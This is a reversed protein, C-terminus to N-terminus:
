DRGESDDTTKVLHYRWREWDDMIYEMISSIRLSVAGLLAIGAGLAMWFGLEPHYWIATGGELSRSGSFTEPELYVGEPYHPSSYVAEDIRGVFQMLALMAVLLIVLGLIFSPWRLNLLVALVFAFGLILWAGVLSRELDMVKGVRDPVDSSYGYPMLYYDDREVFDTYFLREGNYEYPVPYDSEVHYSFYYWPYSLSISILVLSTMMILLIRGSFRAPVM